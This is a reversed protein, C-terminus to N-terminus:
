STSHKEVEELLKKLDNVASEKCGYERKACHGKLADKLIPEMNKSFVERLQWVSSPTVAFNQYIIENWTEDQKTPWEKNQLVKNAPIVGQMATSTPTRSRIMIYKYNGADIRDVCNHTRHLSADCAEILKDIKNHARTPMDQSRTGVQYAYTLGATVCFKPTEKGFLHGKTSSANWPNFYGWEILRETCFVKYQKPSFSEPNFRHEIADKGLTAKTQLQVNHILDRFISDDADLRTQVLVHSRAAQIYDRVVDRDGFLVPTDDKLWRDEIFDQFIDNLGILVVNGKFRKKLVAKLQSLLTPHLNPDTFILWLFDKTTQANVSPLTFTKFLELRAQGLHLLNTQSQSFRTTLIHVLGHKNNWLPTTAHQPVYHPDIWSANPALPDLNTGDLDDSSINLDFVSVAAPVDDEEEDEDDDENGDGGLFTSKFGSVLGGLMGGGGSSSRHNSGVADDDNNNDEDDEYYEDGNSQTSLLVLCCLGMVVMM